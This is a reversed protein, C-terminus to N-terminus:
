FVLILFWHPYLELALLVVLFGLLFFLSHHLVSRASPRLEIARVWKNEPLDMPLVFNRYIDRGGAPIPFAEKMELVLDPEGLQWGNAFKPMAPLRAPNGEPMGGKVWKDFLAIQKETLRREGLFEVDGSSAHWPPMFRSKTVKRMMRGRRRADRYNMLSFPAAEGPRHCGTCNNFVIPAIHQTFTIAARAARPESADDPSQANAPTALALFLLVTLAKM